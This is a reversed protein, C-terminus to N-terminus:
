KDMCLLLSRSCKVCVPKKRQMQQVNYFEDLERQNMNTVKIQKAIHGGTVQVKVFKPIGTATFQVFRFCACEDDNMEKSCIESCIMQWGFAEFINQTDKDM